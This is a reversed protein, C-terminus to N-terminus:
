QQAKGDFVVGHQAGFAHYKDKAAARAAVADSFKLFRGLNHRKGNAHIYALWKNSTKLWSVGTVGSTSDVRLGVNQHNEAHTCLRLNAIANNSPNRDIHDLHLLPLDGHVMLWAIRHALYLRKNIRIQRYGKSDTAGAESGCKAMGGRSIKWTFVGTKQDYDLLSLCTKQDIM